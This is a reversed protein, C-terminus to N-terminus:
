RIARVEIRWNRINARQRYFEEPVQKLDTAKPNWGGHWKIVLEQPEGAPLTGTRLARFRAGPELALLYRTTGEEAYSGMDKVGVAQEIPLLKRVVRKAKEDFVEQFCDSTLLVDGGKGASLMVALLARRDNVQPERIIREPNEGDMYIDVQHLSAIGSEEELLQTFAQGLPIGFVKMDENITVDIGKVVENVGLITFTKM